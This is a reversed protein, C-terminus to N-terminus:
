LTQSMADIYVMPKCKETIKHIAENVEWDQHDKANEIVSLIKFHKKPVAYLLMTDIHLFLKM